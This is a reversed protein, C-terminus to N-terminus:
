ISLQVLQFHDEKEVVVIRPDKKDFGLLCFDKCEDTHRHHTRVRGVFAPFIGRSKVVSLIEPALADEIEKRKLKEEVERAKRIKRSEKTELM